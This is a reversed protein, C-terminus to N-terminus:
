RESNSPKSQVNERSKRASEIIKDLEDQRGEHLMEDRKLTALLYVGNYIREVQTSIEALSAPFDVSPTASIKGNAFSVAAHRVLEAAAMGRNKAVGEILKWESDSFRISRPVRREPSNVGTNENGSEDFAADAPDNETEESM